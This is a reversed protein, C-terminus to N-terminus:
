QKLASKTHDNTFLEGWISCNKLPQAAAAASASGGNRLPNLIGSQVNIKCATVNNTKNANGTKSMDLRYVVARCLKNCISPVAFYKYGCNALQSIIANSLSNLPAAFFSMTKEYKDM